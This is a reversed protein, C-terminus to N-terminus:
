KKQNKFEKAAMAYGGDNGDIFHIHNGPNLDKVLCTMLASDSVFTGYELTGDKHRSNLLDKIKEIQNETCDIVMRLTDDFKRFDSHSAMTQAYKNVTNKLITKKEFLFTCLIIEFFRKITYFKFLGPEHMLEYKVMTFFSEYTMQSPKVPNLVTYDNGVILGLEKLIGSYASDKTKIMLTLIKGNASPIAKWRCSLNHLSVEENNTSEVNYLEPYKKILNESHTLGGGKIKAVCKTEALQFKAVKILQGAEDLKIVPVVGIRLDLNFKNKALNKVRILASTVEKIYKPEILFSAGDGGFVFPFDGCNITDQVAAICAAGIVNVDKYRGNEIAKTSGKIDTIVVFWSSPLQKYNSDLTIEDFLIFSKLNKYFNNEVWSKLESETKIKLNRANM